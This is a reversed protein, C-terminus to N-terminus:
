SDHRINRGPVFKKEDVMENRKASVTVDTIKYVATRSGMSSRYKDVHSAALPHNYYGPVYKELLQQMARTAEELDTVAEARGFLIVSMYATDTEAPVPDAITGYEESVTFCARPNRRMMQIKRGEDAGHFYISNDMWVYNLPIVYPVGEDALGLFGTKADQLFREILERDTCERTMKRMPMM